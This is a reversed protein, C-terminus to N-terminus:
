EPEMERFGELDLITFGDKETRVVDDKQWRSMLRIATELTTGILDAIEQRSLTLPIFTGRQQRVGLREALTIFLRIARREVSGTMDAIRKNVAMLRMTLGALLHRTMDPRKQLLAFFEREPISLITSPELAIASAPFSRREFVAVAGLPEGDGLIEIIVDRIGAAKVIKVRGTVLLHIWEAPDGEHFIVANKEHTSLRCIPALADRDETRLSALLPISGFTISQPPM